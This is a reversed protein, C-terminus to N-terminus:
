KGVLSELFDKDYEREQFNSFSTKKAYRPRDMQNLYGEFKSGFLTSPRLFKEWETGKWEATKHDIVAKFDDLTYGDNVRARIHKRTDESSHKYRTGAKQNLYDVIEAYQYAPRGGSTPPSMNNKDNDCDSDPDNDPDYVPKKAKTQKESFGNAKKAKTQKESFGNAKPRGGMKGAEKRAEVTKEYKEGDRDMRSRIFSFAMSTVADLEPSARGLAHNMIATLLEGRQEMNLLEIQAMYETYLVFSDRM